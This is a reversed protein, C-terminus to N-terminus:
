RFTDPPSDRRARAPRPRIDGQSARLVNQRVEEESGEMGEEDMPQQAMRLAGDANMATVFLGSKLAFMQGPVNRRGVWMVPNHYSSMREILGSGIHTRRGDRHVAIITTGNEWAVAVGLQGGSKTETEQDFTYPKSAVVLMPFQSFDVNGGRSRAEEWDLPLSSLKNMTRSSYRGDSHSRFFRYLMSLNSGYLASHVSHEEFTITRDDSTGRDRM